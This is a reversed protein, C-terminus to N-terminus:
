FRQHRKFFEITKSLIGALQEVDALADHWHETSVQFAAGLNGLRNLFRKQPRLVKLLPEAEARGESGPEDKELLSLLPFLYNKNLTMTDMVPLKALRALKHREMAKGLQYMDFRANHAVIIPKRGSFGEIFGRFEELMEKEERFPASESHYATMQLIQDITLRGPHREAWAGSAVREAEDAIRAKVADSLHAKINIQGVKEGSTSDYAVAAIQTIMTFDRKPDLGTTETDFFILVRDKLKDVIQEISILKKEIQGEDLSERMLQGIRLRLYEKLVNM